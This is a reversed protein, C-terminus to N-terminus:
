ALFVYQTALEAETEGGQGPGKVGIHIPLAQVPGQVKSPQEQEEKHAGSCSFLVDLNASQV